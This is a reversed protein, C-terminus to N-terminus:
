RSSSYAQPKNVRVALGRPASIFFRRRRAGNKNRVIRRLLRRRPSDQTSHPQYIDTNPVMPRLDPLYGPRGDSGKIQM